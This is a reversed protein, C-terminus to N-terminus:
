TGQSYYELQGLLERIQAAVGDIDQETYDMESMETM